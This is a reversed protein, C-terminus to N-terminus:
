ILKKEMVSFNNKRAWFKIQDLVLWINEISEAIKWRRNEEALFELREVDKITEEKLHVSYEPSYVDYLIEHKPANIKFKVTITSNLNDLWFDTSNDESISFNIKEKKLFDEIIPILNNKM